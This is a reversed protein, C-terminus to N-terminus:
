ESSFGHARGVNFRRKRRRADTRATVKFSGPSGHPCPALGIEARTSTRLPGAAQRVARLHRPAHLGDALVGHVVESHELVAVDAHHHADLLCPARAFDEEEVEGEGEEEV